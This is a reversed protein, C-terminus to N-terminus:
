NLRQSNVKSGGQKNTHGKTNVLSNAKKKKVGNWSRLTAKKKERDRCIRVGLM